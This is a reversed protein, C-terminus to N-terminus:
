VHLLKKQKKIFADILPICEQPTSADACLKELPCRDSQTRNIIYAVKKDFSIEIGSRVLLDYASESIVGTHVKKVGGIAMIAAAAKGIVKDAVEANRLFEPEESLLRYLDNVGRETFTRIVGGQRIVCSYGGERLQKILHEMYANFCM